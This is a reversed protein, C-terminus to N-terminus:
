TSTPPAQVRFVITVRGVCANAPTAITNNPTGPNKYQFHSLLFADRSEQVRQPRQPREKRGKRSLIKPRTAAAFEFDKGCLDRLVGCLDSLFRTACAETPMRGGM